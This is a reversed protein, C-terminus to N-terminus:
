KCNGYNQFLLMKVWYFKIIELYRCFFALFFVDSLYCPSYHEDVIFDYWEPCSFLVYLTFCIILCYKHRKWFGKLADKISKLLKM